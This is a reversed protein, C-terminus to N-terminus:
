ESDPREGKTTTSKKKPVPPSLWSLLEKYLAQSDYDMVDTVQVVGDENKTNKRLSATVKNYKKIFQAWFANVDERLGHEGLDRQVQTMLGTLCAVKLMLM